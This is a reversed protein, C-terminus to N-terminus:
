NSRSVNVLGPANQIHGSGSQVWPHAVTPSLALTPSDNPFNPTLFVDLQFARGAAEFGVSYEENLRIEMVSYLFISLIVILFVNKIDM